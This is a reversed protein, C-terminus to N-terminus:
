EEPTGLIPSIQGRRTMWYGEELMETWFLDKLEKIEEMEETGGESFHIGVMSGRGTVGIRTGKTAAILKERFRDGLENFAVAIEPTYIDKLGVYGATMAITNNNFTGSHALATPSRPDYVAMIDARGGFAGFAVGGGLYKGFTSLDPQLNLRSQIGGPALRSTM